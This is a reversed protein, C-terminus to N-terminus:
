IKWNKTSTRVIDIKEEGWITLMKIVILKHEKDPLNNIATENLEKESAKDQERIQLINQDRRM